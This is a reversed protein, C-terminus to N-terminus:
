RKTSPSQYLHPPVPAAQRPGGAGGWRRGGADDDPDAVIGLVACYAYRRMYTIASGQAQPDDKVLFLPTEAEMWEGSSHSLRTILSPQAPVNEFVDTIGPFQIVVLGLPTSTRNAPSSSRGCTPTSPSHLVPQAANKPM